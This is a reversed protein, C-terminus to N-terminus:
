SSLSLDDIKTRTENVLKSIKATSAGTRGALMRVEEAVVSFGRGADGARAAEITANLALLNTQGTIGDIERAIASIQTLVTQMVHNAETVARRRETTDTAYMIFRTLDGRYDQIPLFSGSLWVTQGGANQAQTEQSLNEGRRLRAFGDQGILSDLSLLKELVNHDNTKLAAALLPNVLALAGNPTWEAVANASQIAEMRANYQLAATKTETINAQISVYREHQGNADFVPNISLSIWYPEGTKTYNLIEEYLPQRKDLKARIKAKTALSTAAGQLIDGPKKGKVDELTFHTLKTFGPNIYEIRGQADTIIVSNDTENAVLSLLRVQQRAQMQATIDTAIKVVKITRGNPDLIPNYSGQIWVERGNKGVRRYESTQFKGDRLAAWFAEYSPNAADEPMVFMRHHKGAIEDLAYGMTKLFNANADIIVGNPDFEIVAQSRDIAEVKGRFTAARLKDATIDTAFKVVKVPRNAADFIPNYTAQIWIERGGKGYRRFEGSQFEGRRLSEWFARYEASTECQKDVFMRHHKGKIEALTYGVAALFNANANLIVGDLNFEIVAQSKNIATIQGRWNATEEMHATADSGLLMVKAAGAVPTFAGNLCVDRGKGALIFSGSQAEGRRLASWVDDHTGRALACYPRGTLEHLSYGTIKLFLANAALFRGDPSFEAIAFAHDLAALKAGADGSAWSHPSLFGM